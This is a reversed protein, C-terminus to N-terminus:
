ARFQEILDSISRDPSLQGAMKLSGELWGYLLRGEEIDKLRKSETKIKAHAAPLLGAADQRPVVVVGDDDCVVLDGADVSVGGISVPYGIRGGQTRTPGNANVGTAFVPLSGQRLSASDRLAGDIVVAVIRAAAAHACMLEGMLASSTDGKGDVLLIDGPQALMLAAHIMLNDGPRVEVTFATGAAHLGPVMARVRADLAGRRGAVDAVITTPIDQFAAVTVADLREFDSNIM